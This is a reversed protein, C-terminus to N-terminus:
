KNFYHIISNQTLRKLRDASVLSLQCPVGMKYFHYLSTEKIKYKGNEIDKLKVLQKGTKRLMWLFTADPAETIYKKDIDFDAKYGILFKNVKEQMEEFREQWM